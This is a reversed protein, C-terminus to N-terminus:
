FESRPLFTSAHFAEGYACGSMYGRAMAVGKVWREIGPLVEFQSEYARLAALKTEFTTSVDVIVSPRALLDTVEFLYLAGARFPAGRDALVRETAKWWAEEVIAHCARHDRHKSGPQHTFIRAPRVRRIIEVVDQYTDRDNVLGQCPREMAVPTTTLGLIERARATERARVEAVEGQLEPRPYATEGRTVTVLVVQWGEAVLRAVTGGMGIVCDDAHAEFVLATPPTADTEPPEPELPDM